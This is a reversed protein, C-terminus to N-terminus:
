QLPLSLGTSRRASLFKAQSRKINFIKNRRIKLVLYRTSSTLQIAGEGRTLSGQNARAVLASVM